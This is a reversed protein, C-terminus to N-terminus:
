AAAKALTSVAPGVSSPVYLDRDATVRLTAATYRLGSLPRYGDFMSVYPFQVCFM